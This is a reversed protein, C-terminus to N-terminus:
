ASATRLAVAVAIAVARLREDADDGFHVKWEAIKFVHWTMDAVKRGQGDYIRSTGWRVSGIEEGHLTVDFASRWVLPYVSGHLTAVEADLFDAVVISRGADSDRQGTIHLLLQGSTDYVGFTAGICRAFPSTTLWAAPRSWPTRGQDRTILGLKEAGAFIEARRFENPQWRLALESQDGLGGLLQQATSM